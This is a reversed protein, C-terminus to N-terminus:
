GNAGYLAGAHHDTAIRRRRNSVAPTSAQQDILHFRSSARNGFV